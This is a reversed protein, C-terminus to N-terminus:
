IETEVNEKKWFPLIQGLDGRHQTLMEALTSQLIIVCYRRSTGVTKKKKL